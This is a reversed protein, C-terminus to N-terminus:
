TVKEVRWWYGDQCAYTCGNARVILTVLAQGCWITDLAEWGLRNLALPTTFRVEGDLSGLQYGRTALARTFIDHQETTM